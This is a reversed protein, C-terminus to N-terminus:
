ILEHIVSSGPTGASTTPKPKFCKCYKFPILTDWIILDYLEDRKKRVKAPLEPNEWGVVSTWTFMVWWQSLGLAASAFLGAGRGYTGFVWLVLALMTNVCSLAILLMPLGFHRFNQIAFM